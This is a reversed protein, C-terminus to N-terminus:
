LVEPGHGVTSSNYLTTYGDANLLEGDGMTGDSMALGSQPFLHSGDFMAIGRV